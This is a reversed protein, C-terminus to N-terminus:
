LNTTAELVLGSLECKCQHGFLLSLHFLYTCIFAFTGLSISFTILESIVNQVVSGLHIKYTKLRQNRTEVCTTGSGRMPM